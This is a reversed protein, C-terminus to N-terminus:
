VCAFIFCVHVNYTFICTQMTIYIFKCTPKLICTHQLLCCVYIVSYIHLQERIPSYVPIYVYIHSYTYIYLHVSLDIYIYTYIHISIYIYIHIHIDLYISTYLLFCVLLIHFYGVYITV